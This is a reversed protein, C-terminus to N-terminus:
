KNEFLPYICSNIFYIDMYCIWTCYSKNKLNVIDFKVFHGLVLPLSPAVM